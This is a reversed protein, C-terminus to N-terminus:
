QLLWLVEPSPAEIDVHSKNTRLIAYPGGEPLFKPLLRAGAQLRAGCLM